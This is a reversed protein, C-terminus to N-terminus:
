LEAIFNSQPGGDNLSTMLTFKDQAVNDQNSDLYSHNIDECQIRIM